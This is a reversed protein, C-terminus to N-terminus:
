GNIKGLKPRGDKDVRGYEYETRKANEMFNEHLRNLQAMVNGQSFTKVKDDYYQTLFRQENSIQYEIWFLKMYALLVNLERQTVDETFFHVYTSIDLDYTLPVKPFKFAGIAREALNFLEAEIDDNTLQTLTYSSVTTLFQDYLKEFSLM